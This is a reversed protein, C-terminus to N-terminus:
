FAARALHITGQDRSQVPMFHSATLAVLAMALVGAIIILTHTKMENVEQSMTFTPDDRTALGCKRLQCHVRATASQGPHQSHRTVAERTVM